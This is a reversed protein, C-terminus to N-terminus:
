ASASFENMEEIDALVVVMRLMVVPLRECNFLVVCDILLDADAKENEAAVLFVM